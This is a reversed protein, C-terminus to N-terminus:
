SGFVTIKANWSIGTVGATNALAPTVTDGIAMAMPFGTPTIVGGTSVSISCSAAGSPGSRTLTVTLATAPNGDARYTIGIILGPRTFTVSGDVGDTTLVGPFGDGIDYASLGTTQALM